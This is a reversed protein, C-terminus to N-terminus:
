CEIDRLSDLDIRTGDTLILANENLLLRRAGARYTVTMGGDKKEDPVFCTFVAERQTLLCDSLKRDLEEREDRGLQRDRETERASETLMDEYGTLAAFPAFQAARELRAMRKHHLTPGPLSIIDSHDM